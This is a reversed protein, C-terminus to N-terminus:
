KVLGIEVDYSDWFKKRFNTNYDKLAHALSVKRGIHKNYQEDPRCRSWGMAVVPMKDKDVERVYCHTKKASVEHQWKTVYIKGDIETRM